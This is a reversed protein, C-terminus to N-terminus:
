AGLRLGMFGVRLNVSLMDDAELLGKPFIKIWAVSCLFGWKRSGIEGLGAIFVCSAIFVGIRHLYASRGEDYRYLISWLGGHRM